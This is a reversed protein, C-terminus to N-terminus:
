ECVGGELASVIHSWPAIMYSLEGLDVEDPILKDVADTQADILRNFSAYLRSTDAGVTEQLLRDAIEDLDDMLEECEEDDSLDADSYKEFLQPLFTNFGKIVGQLTPEQVTNCNFYVWLDCLAQEPANPYNRRLLEARVLDNGLAVIFAQCPVKM